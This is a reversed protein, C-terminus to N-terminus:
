VQTPTGTPNKQYRVRGKSDTVLVSWENSSALPGALIADIHHYAMKERTACGALSVVM